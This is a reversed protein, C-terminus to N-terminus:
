EAAPTTAPPQAVAATVAAPESPAEVTPKAAGHAKEVHAQSQQLMAKLIATSGRGISLSVSTKARKKKEGRHETGGIEMISKGDRFYAQMRRWQLASVANRYAELDGWTLNM